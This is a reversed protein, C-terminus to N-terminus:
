WYSNWRFPVGGGRLPSWDQSFAPHIAKLVQGDQAMVIRAGAGLAAAAVVSGVGLKLLGRRTLASKEMHFDSM